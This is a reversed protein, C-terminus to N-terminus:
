AIESGGPVLHSEHGVDPIASVTDPEAIKADELRRTILYIATGMLVTVMIGILIRYDVLTSLGAGLAISITQPVSVMTDAASYVRGQLHAPSRRQIATGFGVLAWPLGSGAVIAGALVLPLSGTPLLAAGGAFLALGLGVLRGDGVRRMAWAATLGGAIAGVGQLTSLVGLFSPPRHLGQSIVAFIITEAFGVVLLAVAVSLVIQRLASTRLIHRVGALLETVFHQEAPRSPSEAVHLMMLFLASIGFTIADVIAVFGGGFAAFLGAGALPGFLRLGERTTQLAANGEALLDEPLMVTLLASQASTFVLGAAGYLLAVVYILWLQARGHVLLLLLVSGGVLLDVVIMLPRRRVRDVLLGGLPAALSPLALFFFVLGAAANSGTLTKVWIGLALYLATDGFLSLTQGILYLRANRLAFLRRM